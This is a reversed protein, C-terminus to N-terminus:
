LYNTNTLKVKGVHVDFMLHGVMAVNEQELTNAMTVLIFTPIFTHVSIMLLM